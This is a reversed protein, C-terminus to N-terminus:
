KEFWIRFRAIFSNSIYSRFKIINKEKFKFNFIDEDKTIMYFLMLEQEQKLDYRENQVYIEKNKNIKLKKKLMKFEDFTIELFDELEDEELENITESYDYNIPDNGFINKSIFVSNKLDM